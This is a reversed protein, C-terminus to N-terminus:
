GRLSVRALRVDREVIDVDNEGYRLATLALSEPRDESPLLWTDEVDTTEGPAVQGTSAGGEVAAGGTTRVAGLRLEYPTDTTNTVAVTLEFQWGDELVRIQAERITEAPETETMLEDGVGVGSRPTPSPTATAEGSDEGLLYVRFLGLFTRAEIAVPIGIGLGVLLRLLWRRRVDRDGTDADPDSDAGGGSVSRDTGDAGTGADRDDSAQPDTMAATHGDTHIDALPLQTKRDRGDPVPATRRDPTM